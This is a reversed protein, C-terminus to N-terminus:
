KIVIKGQTFTATVQQGVEFGEISAMGMDIISMPKGNRMRGAVKLTGESDLKMTIVGNAITRSYMTPNPHNKGKFTFGADSLKRGELWMRVGRSTPKIYTDTTISM